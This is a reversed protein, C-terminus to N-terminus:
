VRMMMSQPAAPYGMTHGAVAVWGRKDRGKCDEEEGGVIDTATADDCTSPESSAGSWASTRSSGADRRLKLSSAGAEEEEEEKEEEDGDGAEREEEEEEVCM